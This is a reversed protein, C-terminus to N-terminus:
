REIKLQRVFSVQHYSRVVVKQLKWLWFQNWYFYIKTVKRFVSPIEPFTEKESIESKQGTSFDLFSLWRRSRPLRSKYPLLFFITGIILVFGSFPESRTDHLGCIAIYRLKDSSKHVKQRMYICWLIKKM